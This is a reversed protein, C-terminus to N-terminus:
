NATEARAVAVGTRAGVAVGAGVRAGVGTTTGVSVVVPCAANFATRESRLATQTLFWVSVGSSEPGSSLDVTNVVSGWHLRSLCILLLGSQTMTCYLPSPAVRCGPGPQTRALATPATSAGATHNLVEFAPVNHDAGPAEALRTRSKGDEM